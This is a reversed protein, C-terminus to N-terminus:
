PLSLSSPRCGAPLSPCRPPKPDVAPPRPLLQVGTADGSPPWLPPVAAAAACSPPSSRSRRQQGAAELHLSLPATATHHPTTALPPRRIPQLPRSSHPCPPPAAHARAARICAPAADHPSPLVRARALPTLPPTARAPATPAPDTPHQDAPTTATRARVCRTRGPTPRCNVPLLPCPSPAQHLPNGHPTEPPCPFAGPRAPRQTKTSTQWTATTTAM